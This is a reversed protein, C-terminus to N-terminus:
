RGVAVLAVSFQGTSTWRFRGIGILASQAAAPVPVATSQVGTTTQAILAAQQQWNGAIDSVDLFVQLSGAANVATVVSALFLTGVNMLDFPQSTGAATIGQWLVAGDSGNIPEGSV